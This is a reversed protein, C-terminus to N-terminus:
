DVGKAIFFIQHKQLKVKLQVGTGSYRSFHGHKVQRCGEKGVCKKWLSSIHMPMASFVCCLLAIMFFFISKM